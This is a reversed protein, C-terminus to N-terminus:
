AAVPAANRFDRLTFVELHQIFSDRRKTKRLTEAQHNETVVAEVYPTAAAIIIDFADSCSPRRARDAYFKHFVTYLSAKLSPFADIDVAENKALTAEAFERVRLALQQFGAIEVFTRLEAATYKDRKPPFNGVLSSIGEIVDDRAANWEREKALLAEDTFALPLVKALRNGDSGLEGSFALMTPDTRWPDPYTQVEDQLLQEHSKILM